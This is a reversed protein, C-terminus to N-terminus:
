LNTSFLGGGRFLWDLSPRMRFWFYHKERIILLECANNTIELQLTVSKEIKVRRGSETEWSRNSIIKISKNERKKLMSIKINM